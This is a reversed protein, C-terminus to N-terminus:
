SPSPPAGISAAPPLLPVLGERGVAAEAASPVRRIWSSDFHSESLSLGVFYTFANQREM